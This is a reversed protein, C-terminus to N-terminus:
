QVVLDDALLTIGRLGGPFWDFAVKRWSGSPWYILVNKGRGTGSDFKLTMCQASVFHFHGLLPIHIM